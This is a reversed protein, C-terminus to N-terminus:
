ASGAKRRQVGECVYHEKEVEEANVLLHESDPMSLLCVLESALHPPPNMREKWCAGICARGLFAKLAMAWIEVWSQWVIALQM